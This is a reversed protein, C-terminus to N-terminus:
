GRGARSSVGPAAPLARPRGRSSGLQPHSTARDRESAVHGFTGQAGATLPRSELYADLKDAADNLALRPTRGLGYIRGILERPMPGRTYLLVSYSDDETLQISYLVWRHPLRTQIYAIAGDSSRGGMM